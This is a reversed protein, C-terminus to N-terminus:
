SGFGVAYTGHAKSKKIGMGILHQNTSSVSISLTTVKNPAEPLGAEGRDVGAGECRLWSPSCGVRVDRVSGLGVHLVKVGKINQFVFM